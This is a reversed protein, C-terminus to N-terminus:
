AALVETPGDRFDRGNDCSRSDERMRFLREWRPMWATERPSTRLPATGTALTRDDARARKRNGHLSDDRPIRSPTRSERSAPGPQLAQVAAQVCPCLRMSVSSSTREPATTKGVDPHM